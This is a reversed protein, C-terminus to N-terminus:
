DEKSVRVGPHGREVVAALHADGTSADALVRIYRKYGTYGMEVVSEADDSELERANSGQLHDDDADAWDDSESDREQVKITVGATDVAGVVVRIAASGYGQLDVAGESNTEGSAYQDPKIALASDINTHIDRQTM